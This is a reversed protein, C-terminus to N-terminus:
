AGGGAQKSAPADDLPLDLNSNAIAGNRAGSTRKDVESEIKVQKASSALRELLRFGSGVGPPKMKSPNNLIVDEMKKTWRIVLQMDRLATALKILESPSDNSVALMKEAKALAVYQLKNLYSLIGKNIDKPNEPMTDIIAELDVAPSVPAPQTPNGKAATKKAEPELKAKKVVENEPTEDELNLLLDVDVGMEKLRSETSRKQSTILSHLKSFPRELIPKNDGKEKRKQQDNEKKGKKKSSPESVSTKLAALAEAVANDSKNLKRKM